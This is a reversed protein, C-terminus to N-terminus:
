DRTVGQFKKALAYRVRNAKERNHELVGAELLMKLCSWATKKNVKFRAEFDLLRFWNGGTQALFEGVGERSLKRNGRDPLPVGALAQGLGEPLRTDGRVLRAGAEERAAEPRGVWGQRLREFYPGVSEEILNLLRFFQSLSIKGGLRDVLYNKLERRVFRVREPPSAPLKEAEVLVQFFMGAVLTTDLAPDAGRRRSPEKVQPLGAAPAWAAFDRDFDQLKGPFLDECAVRTLLRVMELRRDQDM